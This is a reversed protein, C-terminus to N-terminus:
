DNFSKDKLAPPREDYASFFWEKGYWIQYLIYEDNNERTGQPNRYVILCPPAGVSVECIQDNEISVPRFRFTGWSGGM